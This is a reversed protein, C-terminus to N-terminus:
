KLSIKGTINLYLSSIKEKFYLPINFSFLIKTLIEEKAENCINYHDKENEVRNEILKILFENSLQFRELIYNINILESLSFKLDKISLKQTIQDVINLNERIIEVESEQISKHRLFYILILFFDELIYSNTDYASKDLIFKQIFLLLKLYNKSVNKDVNIILYKLIDINKNFLQNIIPNIFKINNENRLENLYIILDCIKEEKSKFVKHIDSNSLHSIIRQELIEQYEKSLYKKYINVYDCLVNFIM